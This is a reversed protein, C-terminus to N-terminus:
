RRGVARVVPVQTLTVGPWSMARIVASMKDLGGQDFEVLNIFQPNDVIFKLLARPNDVRVVTKMPVAIGKPQEVKRPPPQIYVPAVELPADIMASIEEPAAGVQEAAEIDRELQAEAQRKAEAEARRVEEEYRRREEELRRQKELAFNGISGKLIKEAEALPALHRNQEDCIAKWTEHAKKKLPDFSENVRKSLDKIGLLLEAAAENTQDDIVVLGKARTPWDEVQSMMNPVPPMTAEPAMMATSM